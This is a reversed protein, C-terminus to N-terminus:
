EYRRRVGYEIAIPQNVMVIILDLDSGFGWDNRAFSGICLIEQVRPHEKVM